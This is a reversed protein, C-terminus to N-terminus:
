LGFEFGHGIRQQRLCSGLAAALLGFFVVVCSGSRGGLLSNGFLGRSGLLCGGDLGRSGTGIGVLSGGLAAALGLGLLGVLVHIICVQRIDVAIQFAFDFLLCRGFRRRM